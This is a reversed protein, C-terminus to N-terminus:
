GSFDGRAYKQDRRDYDAYDIREYLEARTMMRPILGRQHGVAKLEKLAEEAAKMAVRFATLPYLILRYGLEGLRSPDLLPSRGFETMNALLPVSVERAVIAFEEESELAEPFIVDAGAAVYQKARDIAASLGEVARADTRAIIVFDPDRRTTVAARLKAVMAAPSILSKGQLHGCRKPMAQDELHLGAVGVREFIRVTREVNLTEGFGTDADCVLPLSCVETIRAAAEAFETLTLLGIDPLGSGASLGGGSLYVASYGIQEAIRALLPSFVGPLLLPEREWAERLRRGPSKENSPLIMSEDGNLSIRNSFVESPFLIVGTVQCNM